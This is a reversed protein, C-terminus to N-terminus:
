YHNKRARGRLPAAKVKPLYRGILDLVRLRSPALPSHTSNTPTRGGFEENEDVLKGVNPKLVGDKFYVVMVWRGACLETLCVVRAQLPQDNDSIRKLPMGSGVKRFYSFPWDELRNLVVRTSCTLSGPNGEHESGRGVLLTVDSGGCRREVFVCHEYRLKTGATKPGRNPGNVYLPTSQKEPKCRFQAAVLCNPIEECRPEM